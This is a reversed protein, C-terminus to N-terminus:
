GVVGSVEDIFTELHLELKELDVERLEPGPEGYQVDKRLANLNEITPGAGSSLM